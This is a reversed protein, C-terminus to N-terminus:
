LSEEVEHRQRFERDFDDISKTHGAASDALGMRISGHIDQDSRWQLLAAEPSLAATSKSALLNGVFKHFSELGNADSPQM